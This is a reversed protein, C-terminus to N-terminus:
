HNHDQRANATSHPASATADEAFHIFDVYADVYARGDLINHDKYAALARVREFRARLGETVDHAAADLLPAIEGTALARDAADIGSEAPVGSKLGTYKAGEGARHIRVLNEFFWRDSLAKAAPSLSRVALTQSFAERVEAEDKAQVWKLAIDPKGEALAIRADAIVPGGLSDCHASLTPALSLTVLTTSLALLQVPTRM